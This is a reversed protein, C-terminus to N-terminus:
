MLYQMDVFKYEHVLDRVSEDFKDDEVTWGRMNSRTRVPLNGTGDNANFM